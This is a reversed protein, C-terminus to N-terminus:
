AKVHIENRLRSSVMLLSMVGILVGLWLTVLRVAIAVSVAVSMEAGQEVLQVVLAAEMAGLGGPVMSAAGLLVANAYVESAEILSLELGLLHCFWAFIGAQVGYPFAAILTFLVVKQPCWLKAWPVLAGSAWRGATRMWVPLRAGLVAASPHLVAARFLFSGATIILLAVASPNVLRSQMWGGVAGLLCVGLVDSLRDALFAGLSNSVPVGHPLLLASRFTEGIKGPSATLALGSLYVPLNVRQPVRNGLWLLALHWRWFRLGYTLSALLAGLCLASGGLQRLASLVMGWGSWVIGALYLVAGAAVLMIVWRIAGLLNLPGTIRAHDSAM